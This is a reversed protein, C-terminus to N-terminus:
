AFAMKIPPDRLFQCMYDELLGHKVQYITRGTEDAVQKLRMWVMLACAIHNRQIRELRCQCMELGTVQKAERHFQEGVPRAAIKWRVGCVEQTAQTDDQTKDNTV